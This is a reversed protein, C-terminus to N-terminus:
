WSRMMFPSTCWTNSEPFGREYADPTCSACGAAFKSLAAARLAAFWAASGVGPLAALKM